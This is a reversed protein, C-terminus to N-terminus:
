KKLRRLKNEMKVLETYYNPFECIHQKAITDARKQSTTHELEIKRGIKFQSPSIKCGKTKIM